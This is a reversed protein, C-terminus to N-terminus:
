RAPHDRRSRGRRRVTRCGRAAPSGPGARAAPVAAPYPSPTSAAVWASISPLGSRATEENALDSKRPSIWSSITNGHGSGSGSSCSRIRASFAAARSIPARCPGGRSRPSASSRRRRRDALEALGPEAAEVDVLLVAALAERLGAVARTKSVKAWISAVSEITSPTWWDIPKLPMACTRCRRASPASGARGRRPGCARRSRASRARPRSPRRRVDLRARDLLGVAGPHQVALLAVDAVARLPSTNVAKARQSTSPLSRWM